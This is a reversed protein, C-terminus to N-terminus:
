VILRKSTGNTQNMKSKILSNQELSEWMKSRVFDEIKNGNLMGDSVVKEFAKIVLLVQDHRSKSYGIAKMYMKLIMDKNGTRAIFNGGFGLPFTFPYALWFEEAIQEISDLKFITEDLYASQLSKDDNNFHILGQKNLDLLAQELKIAHAELYRTIHHGINNQLESKLDLIVLAAFLSIKHDESYELFEKM